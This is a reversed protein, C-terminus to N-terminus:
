DVIVETRTFKGSVLPYLEPHTVFYKTAAILIAIDASTLQDTEM